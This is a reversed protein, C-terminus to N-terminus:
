ATKGCLTSDMTNDRLPGRPKRKSTSQRLTNCTKLTVSGGTGSVVVVVVVFVHVVVEVVEVVMSHIVVDPDLSVSMLKV